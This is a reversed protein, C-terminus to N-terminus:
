TKDMFLTIRLARLLRASVERPTAPNRAIACIAHVDVGYMLWAPHVELAKALQDIQRPNKSYGTEVKQIVSQTCHAAQALERQTWGHQLRRHRVRSALTGM